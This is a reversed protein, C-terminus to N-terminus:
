SNDSDSPVEWVFWVLWALGCEVLVLFGCFEFAASSEHQWFFPIAWWGIAIMIFILFATALAREFIDKISSLSM